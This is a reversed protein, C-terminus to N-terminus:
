ASSEIEKLVQEAKKLRKKVMKEVANDTIKDFKELYHKVLKQIPEDDEEIEITRKKKTPGRGRILAELMGSFGVGSLFSLLMFADNWRGALSLYIIVAAIASIIAAYYDYRNVEVQFKKTKIIIRREKHPVRKNPM